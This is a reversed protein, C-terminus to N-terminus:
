SDTPCSPNPISTRCTIHERAIAEIDDLQMLLWYGPRNHITLAVVPLKNEKAAKRYTDAYLTVVSISKRAIRKYYLVPSEKAAAMSWLGSSHVLFVYLGDNVSHLAIAPFEPHMEDGLHANDWWTVAACTKRHKAEIYLREHTSDSCSRDARGLSGSGIQRQAGFDRAIQMERKKWTKTPPM